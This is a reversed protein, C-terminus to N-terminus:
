CLPSSTHRVVDAVPWAMSAHEYATSPVLPMCPHQQARRLLPHCHVVQQVVEALEHWRSGIYSLRAKWIQRLLPPQLVRRLDGRYTFHLVCHTHPLSTAILVLYMSVPIPHCGFYPSQLRSPAALKPVSSLLRRADSSSSKGTGAEFGSDFLQWRLRPMLGVTSGRGM